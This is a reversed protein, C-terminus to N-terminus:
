FWDWPAQGENHSRTRRTIRYGERGSRPIPHNGLHKPDPDRGERVMRLARWVSLCDALITDDVLVAYGRPGPNLHVAIM